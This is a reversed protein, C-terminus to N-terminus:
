TNSIDDLVWVKLENIRKLAIDNTLFAQCGSIIATAIHLADPTRLGYQARLDASKRSIAFSVDILDIGSTEEFLHEYLKILQADKEKIPKTMCESVTIVSTLVNMQHREQYLFVARMKEIFEIRKETYYIFPSTDMYLNVVGRLVADVRM